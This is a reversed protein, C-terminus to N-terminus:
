FNGEYTDILINLFLDTIILSIFSLSVLFLVEPLIWSKSFLHFLRWMSYLLLCLWIFGCAALGFRQAGGLKQAQTGPQSSNASVYNYVITGVLVSLGVIYILCNQPSEIQILLFSYNVPPLFAFLAVDDNLVAVADRASAM